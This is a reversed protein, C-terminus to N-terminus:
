SEEEEKKSLRHDNEFTWRGKTKFLDTLRWIMLAALALLLRIIGIDGALVTRNIFPQQEAEIVFLRRIEYITVAGFAIDSFIIVVWGFWLRAKGKLGALDAYYLLLITATLTALIHWHGTLIPREDMFQWQRFIEDLKVATFIGVGSVTFNMFVMQWTAGFKLPDRVLAAISEFFNAKKIGKEDLGTRILKRWSFIVLLLAGLMALTSGGYIIFHAIEEFAVVLWVGMSLILTGSIYFPMALKQLIGKFDM